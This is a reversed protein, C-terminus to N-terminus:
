LVPTPIRPHMLPRPPPRMFKYHWRRGMTWLTWWPSWLDVATSLLSGEPPTQFDDLEAEFYAVELAMFYPTCQWGKGLMGEAPVRPALGFDVLKILHHDPDKFM